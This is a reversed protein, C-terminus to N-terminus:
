RNLYTFAKEQADTWMVKNPCGRRTIDTLPAAVTSFNPIFKNYFGVMGLFSRVQKKTVARTTNQIDFLKEPNPSIEGEGVIYGLYDVNNFGVKCKSPRTTLGASRVREFFKRLGLLHEEWDSSHLLVDDIYSDTKELGRRRKRMMRNFTAASNVLGFPMRLYCYSGNPTVFCTKNQSSETVAIQWYGKSM